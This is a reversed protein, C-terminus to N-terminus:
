PRGSGALNGTEVRVERGVARVLLGGRYRFEMDVVQEAREGQLIVSIRAEGCPDAAVSGSAAVQYRFSKPRLTRAWETVGAFGPAKPSVSTDGRWTVIQVEPAVMANLRMQDDALGARIIAVARRGYAADIVNASEQGRSLPSVCAFRSVADREPDEAGADPLQSISQGAALLLLPLLSSM